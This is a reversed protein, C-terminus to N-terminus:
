ASKLASKLAVGELSIEFDIIENELGYVLHMIYIIRLLLFLIVLVKYNCKIKRSMVHKKIESFNEMITNFQESNM